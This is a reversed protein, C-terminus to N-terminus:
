FYGKEKLSSLVDNHNKINRKKLYNLFTRRKGVLRLLGLRSHNDKPFAKLHNAIQQIRKCILAVQVECSGSDNKTKAFQKIVESKIEKSLM